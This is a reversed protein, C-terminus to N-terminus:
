VAVGYDYVVMKKYNSIYTNLVFFNWWARFAKANPLWFEGLNPDMFLVDQGVFAAVAHGSTASTLALLKYGGGRAAIVANLAAMLSPKTLAVERELLVGTAMNHRRVVHFKKLFNEFYQIQQGSSKHHEITINIAAGANIGGQNFLYDWVSRGRVFDAGYGSDQSSHFAIWFACVAACVGGMPKGNRLVMKYTKGQDPLNPDGLVFAQAQSFDFSRFGGLLKAQADLQDSQVSSGM